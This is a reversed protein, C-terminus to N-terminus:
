RSAPAEIVKARVTEDYQGKPRFRSLYAPVEVEISTPEIGLAALTERGTVINDSKLLSVQDPTLLPKPLFQLFMAQISAVFYSVPILLRRRCTERLVFQMLEKFTYVTPGGLEFTHGRAAPDSLARVIAAAVDGVFVPQFKTAGGGILPLFPLMRALAAFRNFFDDDPGFM